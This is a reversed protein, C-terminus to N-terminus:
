RYKSFLAGAFKRLFGFRRHEFHFLNTRSDEVTRDDNREVRRDLTDTLSPSCKSELRIQLGHYLSMVTKSYYPLSVEGGFPVIQRVRIELFM